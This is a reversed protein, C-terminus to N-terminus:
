ATYSDSQSRHRVDPSRALATKAPAAARRSAYAVAGVGAALAALAAAGAFVARARDGSTRCRDCLSEYVAQGGRMALAKATAARSGCRDCMPNM